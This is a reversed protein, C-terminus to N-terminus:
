GWPGKSAAIACQIAGEELGAGCAAAAVAAAWVVEAAAATLAARDLVAAVAAVTPVEGFVAAAALLARAVWLLLRRMIVM